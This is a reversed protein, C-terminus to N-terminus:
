FSRIARVNSLNNKLFPSQPGGGSFVQHYAQFQSDESSSWYSNASFNGITARYQYLIMLEDKSPLYWDTYGGGNYARALGAAYNASPAGQVSIITNTNTLGTGLLTGTANTTVASVNYWIIATSQDSEAAILGHQEHDSVYGPDVAQLLYALKGGQYDMGTAPFTVTVVVRYYNVNSGDQSTVRIIFFDKNTIAQNNYPTDNYFTSAPNVGTAYKVVKVAAGSNTPTFLTIFTGTNLTDLAKETTINVAGPDTISTIATQPTGLKDLTGILAIGKITSSTRLTAVNSNVTVVIKYYLTNLNDQSTVEIIFFDQDTITGDAYAADAAFNTIPDSSGYKVAKVTAGSNTPTFLTTLAGNTAQSTTLTVSGGTASGPVESPAGLSTVTVGKVTSSAQLTDVDSLITVAIEYYNVVSADESTVRIVFFDGNDISDTGNYDTDTAFGSTDGGTGYKVVKVTAEGDTPTFLTTLDGNTAQTTTIEVSGVDSMDTLVAVPTGLGAVTVSKVTSSAQLTAEDSLVNVIIGYYLVTTTDQATVKIIFISSNDLADTGNYNAHVAYDAEAPIDHLEGPLYMVVRATAETNTPAFLTIFSGANSIDTAQASTLTVSGADANTMNALAASPTGLGTTGLVVGKITSATSLTAESSPSSSNNTNTTSSSGGCSAFLGLTLALFAYSLNKLKM